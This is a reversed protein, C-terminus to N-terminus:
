TYKLVEFSLIFFPKGNVFFLKGNVFFMNGTIILIISFVQCKLILILVGGCKLKFIM